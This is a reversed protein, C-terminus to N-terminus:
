LAKLIFIDNFESSITSSHSMGLIVKLINRKFEQKVRKYRFYKLFIISFVGLYKM